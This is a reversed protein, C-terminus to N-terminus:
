KCGVLPQDTCPVMSTGGCSNNDANFSVVYSGKVLMVAYSSAGTDGFNRSSITDGGIQKWSVAANNTPDVPMAGGNLTVQGSVKAAEVDLDLVGDASLALAKKIVGRNCPISPTTAQTCLQANGSFSVDYTGPLVTMAYNAAGTSAISDGIGSAGTVGAPVLLVTGRTTTATAMPAGNITVQGSVRVAPVDLDLVGDASLAVATKLTGSNCPVMGDCAGANGAFGVTYTGKILAASYTPMLGTGLPRAVASGAGAVGTDLTFTISGRSGTAPFPGSKLTAKGSVKIMAVDLDLVGDSTLPVATKVKGSNCPANATTADCQQPNGSYTVDYSGPALVISYTGTPGLQQIAAGAKSGVPTFVVSAGSAPPWPKANVTVKGSVTVAPLDLDLVGNATLSLNSKLEGTGCPLPGDCAGQPTFLVTYTGPLVTLEYSPDAGNVQVSAVGGGTLSFSVTGSEAIPFTAGKLSLRGSVKVAKIDLDLVGSGTLPVASKIVGNICPTLRQDCGQTGDAWLVDYVGPGLVTEYTGTPSLVATASAGSEKEIFRVSAGEDPLPAGALTVKGSVKISKVDVDLVGDASIAIGPCKDLPSADGGMDANGGGTMDGNGGGGDGGNNGNGGCGAVLMVLLCVNRM